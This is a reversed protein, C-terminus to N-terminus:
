KILEHMAAVVEENENCGDIFTTLEQRAETMVALMKAQNAADGHLETLYWEYSLLYGAETYTLDIEAREHIQAIEDCDETDVAFGLEEAADKYDPQVFFGALGNEDLWEAAVEIGDDVSNAFVIVKTTAFAGFQFVYVNKWVDRDFPNAVPTTKDIM